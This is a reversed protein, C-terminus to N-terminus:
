GGGRFFRLGLYVIVIGFTGFLLTNAWFPLAGISFFIGGFFYGIQSLFSLGTPTPPTGLDTAQLQASGYLGLLVGIAIYFGFIVLIYGTESGGAM